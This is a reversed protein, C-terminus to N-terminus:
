SLWPIHSQFFRDQKTYTCLFKPRAPDAQELRLGPLSLDDFELTVGIANIVNRGAFAGSFLLASVTFPM